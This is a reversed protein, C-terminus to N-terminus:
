AAVIEEEAEEAEEPDDGKFYTFVNRVYSVGDMAAITSVDQSAVVAEIVHNIDDIIIDKGGAETVAATLDALSNHDFNNQDVVILVNSMWM